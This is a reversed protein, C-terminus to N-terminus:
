SESLPITGAVFREVAKEIPAQVSFEKYLQNSVAWRGSYTVLAGTYYGQGFTLMVTWVVMDNYSTKEPNPYTSAGVRALNMQHETIKVLNLLADYM